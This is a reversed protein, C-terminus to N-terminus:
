SVDVIKWTFSEPECISHVFSNEGGHNEYDRILDEFAEKEMANWEGKEHYYRYSQSIRDKLKARESVDNKEQVEIMMQALVNLKNKTAKTDASIANLQQEHALLMEKEHKKELGWKTKIGFYDCYWEIIKIITQMAFLLAFIVIITHVMGIESLLYIIENM